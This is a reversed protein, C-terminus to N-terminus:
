QGFHLNLSVQLSRHACGPSTYFSGMCGQAGPGPCSLSAATPVQLLAAMLVSSAPLLQPRQSPICGGSTCDVPLFGPSSSDRRCEGGLALTLPAWDSM